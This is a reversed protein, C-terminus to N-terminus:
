RQPVEMRYPWGGGADVDGSHAIRVGRTTGFGGAVGLRKSREHDAALEVANAVPRDARSPAPQASVGANAHSRHEAAVGDLAPATM